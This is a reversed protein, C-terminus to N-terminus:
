LLHGRIEFFYAWGLPDQIGAGINQVEEHIVKKVESLELGIIELLGELHEVNLLRNLLEDLHLLELSPRFLNLNLM